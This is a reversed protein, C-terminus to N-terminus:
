VRGEWHRREWEVLIKMYVSHDVRWKACLVDMFSVSVCKLLLNFLHYSLLVWFYLCKLPPFLALRFSSLTHSFPLFSLFRSVNFLFTIDKVKERERRSLNKYSSFYLTVCKSRISLLMLLNIFCDRRVCEWVGKRESGGEIGREIAEEGRKGGRRRGKEILAWWEEGLSDWLLLFSICM